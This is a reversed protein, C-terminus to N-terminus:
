LQRRQCNTVYCQGHYARCDRLAQNQAQQQTRGSGQHGYFHEEWGRDRAQCEFFFRGGGGGGGQVCRQTRYNYVCGNNECRRPQGDFQWCAVEPSADLEVLGEEYSLEESQNEDTGFEAAQASAFPAALGFFMGVLTVQFKGRM